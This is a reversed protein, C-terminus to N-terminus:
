EVARGARVLMLRHTQGKNLFGDLGSAFDIAWVSQAGSDTVGDANPQNTWFWMPSSDSTELNLFFDTDILPASTKGFHLLSMLEDPSPVRWDFFSCLGQENVAQIYAQTNCNGSALNCSDSSPNVVGEFGGNDNDSFWTFQQEASHLSEESGESKIQWVLGTINDRVCNWPETDDNLEAGNVDLRTFDFGNAGTGAKRLVGYKAVTDKGRHGDQGPYEAQYAETNRNGSGDLTVGTDNITEFTFPLVTMSINNTAVNGFQDQADVTFIVETAVDVDPAVAFTRASTADQYDIDSTFDDAWQFSFPSASPAISQAFAALNIKEGSLVALNPGMSVLPISKSEQLMTLSVETTDTAGDQDTVILELVVSYDFQTVGVSFVLTESSTDVDNLVSEGSVQQWQYTLSPQESDLPDSDTSASGSLTIESLIPFTNEAYGQAQTVQIDAVPLSNKATVALTIADSSSVGRADTATLVLEYQMDQISLPATLSAAAATNQLQEIDINDASSWAFSIEGEGGSASGNLEVIEGEEASINQGANVLLTPIKQPVPVDNGGGGGCAILAFTALLGFFLQLLQNARSM